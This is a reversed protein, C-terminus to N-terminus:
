RRVHIGMARLARKMKRMSNESYHFVNAASVAEVGGQRLGEAMHEASSAGGFAIVPVSVADVVKRLLPLDYGCRMGDNDISCLFIEGAGRAVAERAWAEARWGTPERGRDVHVMHEGRDDRRCDIGVVICQSGFRRAAEELFVPRHLAETNIVAKDAGRSLVGDIDACSRLWGGASIPVFCTRSLRELTDLFRARHEDTRTVDLIVLEDADWKSFYEVAFRPDKHIVNTHRFQVSQVVEGQRLILVAIVRKKLM